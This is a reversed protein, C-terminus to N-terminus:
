ARDRRQRGPAARSTRERDGAGPDRRHAAQSNGSVQPHQQIGAPGPLHRQELIDPLRVIRPTIVVIIENDSANNDETSFLYRLLPIKSLGPIGDVTVSDSRQIIGGVVSSEGERLRIDHNIERNALIPYRNGDLTEFGSITKM